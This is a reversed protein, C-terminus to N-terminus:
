GKRRRRRKHQPPKFGRTVTQVLETAYAQRSTMFLATIMVVVLALCLLTLGLGRILPGVLLGSM